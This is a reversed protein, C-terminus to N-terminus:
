FDDPTFEVDWPVWSEVPQADVTAPDFVARLGVARAERDFAAGASKVVKVQKVKGDVGVLLSLRVLVAGARPPADAPWEGKPRVKVRAPTRKPPTAPGTGGVVGDITGGVVEERPRTTEPTAKVAADGFSDYEGKQIAIGGDLNTLGTLALAVPEKVEVPKPPPPPKDQKPRPAREVLKPPPKVEEPPPEPPKPPEPEVKPPEPPPPPVEIPAPKPPVFAVDEPEEQSRPIPCRLTEDTFRVTRPGLTWAIEQGKDATVVFAANPYRGSSGPAFRTPPQGAPLVVNDSGLPVEVPEDSENSYGFYVAMQGTGIPMACLVRPRVPHYTLAVAVGLAGLVLAGSGLAIAFRPASRLM